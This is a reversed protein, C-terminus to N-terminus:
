REGAVFCRIRTGTVVPTSASMLGMALIAPRPGGSYTIEIDTELTRVITPDGEGPSINLVGPLEAVTLETEDAGPGVVRVTPDASWGVMYGNQSDTLLVHPVISTNQSWQDQMEPILNDVTNTFRLIKLEGAIARVLVAHWDTYDNAPVDFVERARMMKASVTDTNTWARDGELVLAAELNQDIIQGALGVSLDIVAPCHVGTLPIPPSNVSILSRAADMLVNDSFSAASPYLSTALPQQSQLVLSGGVVQKKILWNESTPTVVVLQIGKLPNTTVDGADSLADIETDDPMIRQKMATTGCGGPVTLVTLDEAADHYSGNSLATRDITIDAEIYQGSPYFGGLTGGSSPNPSASWWAENPNFALETGPPNTNCNFDIRLTKTDTMPGRSDMLVILQIPVDGGSVSGGWPIDPDMKFGIWVPDFIAPSGVANVQHVYLDGNNDVRCDVWDFTSYDGSHAENINSANLTEIADGINGSSALSTGLDYVVGVFEQAVNSLDYIVLLKTGDDSFRVRHITINETPDNGAEAALEHRYVTRSGAEQIRWAPYDTVEPFDFGEDILWRLKPTPM